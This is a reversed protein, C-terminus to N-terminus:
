AHRKKTMSPYNDLHVTFCTGKGPTSEFIIAADHHDLIKKVAAMGLGGGRGYSTKLIEFVKDRSDDHILRGTDKIKIEVTQNNLLESAIPM